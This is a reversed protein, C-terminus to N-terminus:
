VQGTDFGHTYMVAVPPLGPNPPEAFLVSITNIAASPVHLVSDGVVNILMLSNVVAAAACYRAGNM